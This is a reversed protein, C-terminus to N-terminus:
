VLITLNGQDVNLNVPELLDCRFIYREVLYASASDIQIVDWPQIQYNPDIVILSNVTVFRRFLALHVAKFTAFFGTLILVTALRNLVWDSVAYTDVSNKM